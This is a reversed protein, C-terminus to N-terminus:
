RARMGGTLAAFGLFIVAKQIQKAIKLDKNPRNQPFRYWRSGPDTEKKASSEIFLAIKSQIILVIERNFVSLKQNVFLIIQMDSNLARATPKMDIRVLHGEPVGFYLHFVSTNSRKMMM